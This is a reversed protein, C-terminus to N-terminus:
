SVVTVQDGTLSHAYLLLGFEYPRCERLVELAATPSSDMGRLQGWRRSALAIQIRNRNSIGWPGDPDSGRRQIGRFIALSDPAILSVGLENKGFLWRLGLSLPREYNGIGLEQLPALAMYAMADQHVSFVPYPELVVGTKASYMWWWQGLPGQAEVLAVATQAVSPPLSAEFARTRQVLGHMPYVQTAFSTVRSYLAHRHSLTPASHRFLRAEPSFRRELELACRDAFGHLRDRLDPFASAAVALGSLVLGLSMSQAARPRVRRELSVSLERARGDGRLAFAWTAAGLLSHDATREVSRWLAEFADDSEALLDDPGSRGRDACLGILSMATYLPNNGRKEMRGEGLTAKHVFLDSSEDVMTALLGRALPVLDALSHERGLPEIM